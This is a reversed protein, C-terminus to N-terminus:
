EKGKDQGGPHNKNRLMEILYRKFEEESRYLLAVKKIPLVKKFQEHYKKMIDLEHQRFVIENDVLKEVEKDTLNEFEEKADQRDSRRNKRITELEKTMQNYVPWFGKAEDPTLELRKTLFGIKMAEIREKKDERNRARDQAKLMGSLCILLLILGTKKMIIMDSNMLLSTSIPKTTSSTIKLKMKM